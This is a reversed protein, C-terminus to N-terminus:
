SFFKLVIAHEPPSEYYDLRVSAEIFGVKRYLERAARNSARVELFWRGPSSRLAACLLTAAVGRRRFAPDVALNLVEREDAAERFVLFGVVRQDVVAVICNYELYESAAWHAADPSARQIADIAALDGPAAPRIEILAV